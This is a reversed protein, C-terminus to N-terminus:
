IKKIFNYAYVYALIAQIIYGFVVGWVGYYHCLVILIPTIILLIYFSIKFSLDLRGTGIFAPGKLTILSYILWGVLLVRFFPMAQNYKGLFLFDVIFPVILQACCFVFLSIFIYKREFGKLEKFLLLKNSSLKAFRPLVFQQVSSSIVGLGQILILAFSYQGFVERDLVFYNAIFFGAYMLMQDSVQTFFNFKSLNKIQKLLDNTISSEVTEKIFIHDRLAYLLYFLTFVFGIVVGLVYGKLLYFYTFGIIFCVSLTKTVFQIISVKKFQDLAQFYRVMILSIPSALLVLSFAPFLSNIEADSSLLGLISLINLIIFVGISFLFAHKLSYQLVFYHKSKNLTSPVIKLVAVVLGGGAIIAAVDIITQLVKIRGLDEPLLLGAVLMQSGFVMFQVLFNSFFLHFFGKHILKKVEILINNLM